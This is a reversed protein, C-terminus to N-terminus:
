PSGLGSLRLILNILVALIVSGIVSAGAIKAQATRIGGIEEGTELLRKELDEHRRTYEDITLFKATERQREVREDGIQKRLENAKEDKYTQTERALRLAEASAEFQVGLAKDRENLLAELHERLSVPDQTM